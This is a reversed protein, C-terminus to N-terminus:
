FLAKLFSFPLEALTHNHNERNMPYTQIIEKHAGLSLNKEQASNIEWFLNRTQEKFLVSKPTSYSFPIHIKDHLVCTCKPKIRCNETHMGASNLRVRHGQAIYGALIKRDM